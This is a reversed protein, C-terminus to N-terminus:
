TAVRYPDIVFGAVDLRQANYENLASQMVQLEYGSGMFDWGVFGGISDSLCWKRGDWYESTYEWAGSNRVRAKFASEERKLLAPDIAPNVEPNFCDGALDYFTACVDDTRTLRIKGMCVANEIDAVLSPQNEYGTKLHSKLSSIVKQDIDPLNEIPLM